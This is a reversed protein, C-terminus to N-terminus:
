IRNKYNHMREMFRKINEVLCIINIATALRNASDRVFADHRNKEQNELLVILLANLAIYRM